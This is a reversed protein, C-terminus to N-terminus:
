VAALRRARAELRERMVDTFVALIIVSGIVIQQLYSSAGVLNLGNRIVAILLAGILTGWMTGKGGFFSAGGIICAAIADVEFGDGALPYATNVRGLIVWGAIGVLFGTLTYCFLLVRDTKIGSLKAAEPNGGLVYIQRGLATKTLFFHMVIFILIVAIFSYPFGGVTSYGLATVGDPFNAIPVAGTLFLALGRAINMTGLTSIFPHPLHLKTLLLGNVFGSFAAVGLCTLIILVPNTIGAKMALGAVCTALALVAGVSLDIGATILVILMGAAILANISTQKFINMINEYRVFDPSAISFVVIVIILAFAPGVKALMEKMGTMGSKVAMASESM